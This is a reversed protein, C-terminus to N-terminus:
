PGGCYPGFNPKVVAFNRRSTDGNRLMKEPVSLGPSKGEDDHLLSNHWAIMREQGQANIIPNEYYEVPKSEGSVLQAFVTRVQKRIGEPFFTDFWNKGVIDQRPYGLVQCGKRNILEVNHNKDIVVIMVEVVDLYTDQWGNGKRSKM